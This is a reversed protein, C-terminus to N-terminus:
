WVGCIVRVGIAVCFTGMSNEYLLSSLLHFPLSTTKKAVTHPCPLSGLKGFSKLQLDRGAPAYTCRVHCNCPLSRTERCAVKRLQRERCSTVLGLTIFKCGFYICIYIWARVCFDSVCVRLYMLPVFHLSLTPSSHISFFLYLPVLLYISILLASACTRAHRPCPLM